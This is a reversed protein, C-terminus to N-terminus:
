DPNNRIFMKTIGLTTRESEIFMNAEDLNEDHIEDSLSLSNLYLHITETSLLETKTVAYMEKLLEETILILNPTGTVHFNNGRSNIEVGLFLEIQRLHKDFPGCLNSLRKNDMPKLLLGNSSFNNSNTTM